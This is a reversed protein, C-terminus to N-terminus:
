ETTTLFDKDMPWTSTEEVQCITPKLDQCVQLDKSAVPVPMSDKHDLTPPPLVLDVMLVKRNSHKLVLTLPTQVSVERGLINTIHTQTLWPQVRVLDIFVLFSDDDRFKFVCCMSKSLKAKSWWTLGTIWAFKVLLYSFFFLYWLM